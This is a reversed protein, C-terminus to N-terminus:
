KLIEKEILYVTEYLKDINLTQNKYFHLSVFGVPMKEKNRIIHAYYLECDLNMIEFYKKHKDKNLIIYNKKCLHDFFHPNHSVLLNKCESQIHKYQQNVVENTMTHKLIHTNDFYNDGNHFRNLTARDANSVTQLKTLLNSVALDKHTFKYISERKKINNVYYLLFLVLLTIEFTLEM